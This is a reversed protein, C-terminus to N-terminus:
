DLPSYGDLGAAVRLIQRADFATIEGDFDADGMLWPYNKKNELGAAIRLATRADEATVTENCDIDGFTDGSLTVFRMEFLSSLSSLKDFNSITGLQMFLAWEAIGRRMLEACIEAAKQRSCFGIPVRLIYCPPKISPDFGCLAAYIGIHSIGSIKLAEPELFNRHDSFIEEWETNEYSAKTKFIIEYESTYYVAYSPVSFSLVLCLILLIIFIKKM